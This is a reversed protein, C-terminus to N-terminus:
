PPLVPDDQLPGFRTPETVEGHARADLHIARADLEADYFPSFTRDPLTQVFEADATHCAPCGAIELNGRLNPLQETEEIGGLDVPVWPVGQNVRASDNRFEEPLAMTRRDLADANEQVFALFAERLPGPQNVAPTDVTQFLPANELVGPEADVPFWQRWEWPSTIFELTEAAIFRPQVIGVEVMALVQTEMDQPSMRSLEAWRRATAVCHSRGMPSLDDPQAPQQFLFILHLPRFQPDISAVSIRLEGCHGDRALDIRNHIATVVFPLVDLDWTAPEPGLQMAYADLLDTPGFRQSHGTTAFREFWTQLMTGGAQPTAVTAMVCALGCAAPGEVLSPQTWVLSHERVVPPLVPGFDHVRLEAELSEGTPNTAVFEHAGAELVRPHMWGPESAEVGTELSVGQGASRLTADVVRPEPLTLAWVCSENPALMVTAPTDLILSGGGCAELPGGTTTEASAGTDTSSPEETTRGTDTSGSSATSEGSSSELGGADDGGCAAVVFALAILKRSAM